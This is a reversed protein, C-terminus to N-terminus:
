SVTEHIERAECSMNIYDLQEVSNKASKLAEFDKLTKLNAHDKSSKPTISLQADKNINCSKAMLLAEDNKDDASDNCDSTNVNNLSENLKEGSFCDYDEKHNFIEYKGKKEISHLDPETPSDNLNRKGKPVFDVLTVSPNRRDVVHNFNNIKRGNGRKGESPQTRKYVLM